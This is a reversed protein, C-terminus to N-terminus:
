QLSDDDWKLMVRSGAGPASEIFLEGGIHAARALEKLPELASQRTLWVGAGLLILACVFFGTQIARLRNVKATSAAEYLRVVEDAQAVLTSSTEEIAQLTVAFSPDGRPTQQLTDLLARFDSWTLAVRNLASRIQPDRTLPLTVTTDSLYPAAGGDLLPTPQTRGRARNL